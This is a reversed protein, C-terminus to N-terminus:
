FRPRLRVFLNPPADSDTVAKAIYIGLDDLRLGVGVDARFTGLPPM